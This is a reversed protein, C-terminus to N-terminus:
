GIRNPAIYGFRVKIKDGESPHNNNNNNNNDESRFDMVEVFNNEQYGTNMDYSDGVGAVDRSAEEQCGGPGTHGRRTHGQRTDEWAGEGHMWGM